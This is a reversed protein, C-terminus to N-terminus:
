SYLKYYVTFNMFIKTSIHPTVDEVARRTEDTLRSMLLPYQIYGMPVSFESYDRHAPTVMDLRGPLQPISTRGYTVPGCQFRGWGPFLHLINPITGITALLDTLYNFINYIICGAASDLM